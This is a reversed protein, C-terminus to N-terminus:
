AVGTKTRVAFHPISLDTEINVTLLKRKSDTAAYHEDCSSAPSRAKGDSKTHGVAPIILPSNGGAPV